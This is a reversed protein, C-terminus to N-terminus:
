YDVRFGFLYRPGYGEVQNPTRRTGVYRVDVADNLNNANAFVTLQADGFSRPVLYRISADIREQEAWFEGLSDNETTSLWDDRYQYNIRASLGYKEYFLSANFITDSTGPLSFTAGSNTEFESDLLTLNASVGFGDLPGEIFADATVLANFELGTLWGSRGNVFGNLTWLQGAATPVYPGADVLTSDSYIVDEIRRVFAGASLLNAPAFYWELSVDGGFAKEPDLTPNGGTITQNPVDVTASARWENYTPRSLGSSASIRLKLDERLDVNMHVSPLITVDDGGVSVDIAPGASTYDTYEIRAGYVLNFGDFQTTAMAYGALITEEISVLEDDPASPTLDGAAAEWAARLGSNDYIRAGISNNFDSYWELGTQFQAPDVSSPFGGIALASGFGSAERVDIQGGVKVDTTRGFWGFEREADLKLKVNETDLESAFTLALNVPYRLTGIDIPTQSFPAFVTVVPADVNTLDYSAAASAALSYPIPLFTYFETETFNLRGEMAWGAAEFDVGATTTWTSNDYRGDELLRNVLVLPQYGTAGPTVSSGIAGAGGAIDFVYQNREEEDIFESFLTTLFVRNIMAADPRIEIRGGFANDKRDVFYSRFDLENVVLEGSNTLELDFERNDTNQRRRNQSVFGVVGFRDNSFSVRANARTNPGGGLEQEGSGLEVSVGFGDKAFPDFTRINVFGSVAEGPMEPTIAKNAEVASVIASPFADFRPIRGNEAGPVDVGDFAIATYRFPAGRFNIYRAQGQDREIAIGPVRGLSDALNQDPFRGITDASIIDVVNDAARKAELAAAQSDRIPTATVIITEQRAEADEQAVAPASAGLMVAAGALLRYKFRIHTM